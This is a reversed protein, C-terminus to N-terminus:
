SSQDPLLADIAAIGAFCSDKIRAATHANVGGLAYVPLGARAAILRARSLGLPRRDPHSSTAFVPALLAADAGAIRAASVARASHAAATILWSPKLARWHAAERARAEPLHLGHAGIGAALQADGAVLLMLGKARALEVLARGLATRAKADTHRLVIASGRPLARAAAVPDSVRTQDTMLILAPLGLRGSGANLARAARALKERDLASAM